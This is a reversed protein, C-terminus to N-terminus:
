LIQQGRPGYYGATANEMCRYKHGEKRAVASKLETLYFSPVTGDLIGRLASSVGEILLEIKALLNDSLRASGM